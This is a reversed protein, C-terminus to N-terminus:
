KKPSLTLDLGIIPDHQVTPNKAPQVIVDLNDSVDFTKLSGEVYADFINLVYWLAAIISFLNRDRKRGDVYHRLSYSDPKHILDRKSERYELHNYIAGWALGAFIGYIVAIKWYNQNYAQGLGPLVASYLWARQTKIPEQELLQRRLDAHSPKRTVRSALLTPRPLCSATDAAIPSAPTTLAVPDIPSYQQIAVYAKDIDISQKSAAKAALNNKILLLLSLLVFHPVSM